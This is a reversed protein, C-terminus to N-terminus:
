PAFDSHGVSESKLLASEACPEAGSKLSPTISAEPETLMLLSQWKSKVQIRPQINMRRSILRPSRARNFCLSDRPMMDWGAGSVSGM